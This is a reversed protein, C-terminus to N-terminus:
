LLGQILYQQKVPLIILGTAPLKKYFRFNEIKLLLNKIHKFDIYYIM